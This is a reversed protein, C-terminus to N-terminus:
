FAPDKPSNEYTKKPLHPYLNSFKEKEKSKSDSISPKISFNQKLNSLKKQKIIM